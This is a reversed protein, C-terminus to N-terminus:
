RTQELSEFRKDNLWQLQESDFLTGGVVLTSVAPIM